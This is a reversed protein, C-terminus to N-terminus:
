KAVRTRKQEYPAGQRLHKKLIGHVRAVHLLMKTLQTLHSMTFPAEDKLYQRNKRHQKEIYM